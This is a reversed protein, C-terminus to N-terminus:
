FIFSTAPPCPPRGRGPNADLKGMLHLNNEVVEILLHVTFQHKEHDGVRPGDRAGRPEHPDGM